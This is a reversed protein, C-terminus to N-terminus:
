LRQCPCERRFEFSRVPNAPNKSKIPNPTPDSATPKVAAVQARPKGDPCEPHHHGTKGCGFCRGERMYRAHDDSSLTTGVRAVEAKVQTTAQRQPETANCNLNPKYKCREAGMCEEDLSIALSKLDVLVDLRRGILLQKIEWRLGEYFVAMLM